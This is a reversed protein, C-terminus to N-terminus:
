VRGRRRKVGKSTDDSFTVRKKSKRTRPPAFVTPIMSSIRESLSSSAACSDNTDSLEREKRHIAEDNVYALCFYIPGSDRIDSVNPQEFVVNVLKWRRDFTWPPTRSEDYQNEWRSMLSVLYVPLNWFVRVVVDSSHQRALTTFHAADDDSGSSKDNQEGNNALCQSMWVTEVSEPQIFRGGLDQSFVHRIMECATRVRAGACADAEFLERARRRRDIQSYARAVWSEIRTVFKSPEAFESMLSGQSTTKRKGIAPYVNFIFVVNIAPCLHDYMDASCTRIIVSQLCVHPVGGSRTCWTRSSRRVMKDLSDVPGDDAFLTAFKYVREIDVFRVDRFIVHFLAPQSIVDGDEGKDIFVLDKRVGSESYIGSRRAGLSSDNSEHFQGFQLKARERVVRACEHVCESCLVDSDHQIADSASAM